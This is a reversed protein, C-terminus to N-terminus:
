KLKLKAIITRMSNEVIGIAVAQAGLAEESAKQAKLKQLQAKENQLQLELSILEDPIEISPEGRIKKQQEVVKRMEWYGEPDGRAVVANIYLLYLAENEDYGLGQLLESAQTPTLVGQKAGKIIEAKTLNKEAVTREGSTAKVITTMLENAKDDPVGLARIANYLQTENIWGKSYQTKLTPLAVDIVTWVTLYAATDAGYGLAQFQDYLFKTPSNPGETTIINQLIQLIDITSISILKYEYLRVIDTRSLGAAAVKEGVTYIMLEALKAAISQEYGLNGIEEPLKNYDIYGLKYLNQIQTLTLKRPTVALAKQEAQSIKYKSQAVFDDITSQLYGLGAMTTRLWGETRLGNEFMYQAVSRSMSPPELITPEATIRIKYADAREIWLALAPGPTGLESLKSEFDALTIKGRGYLYMYETRVANREAETRYAVMSVAAKDADEESLGGWRRYRKIDEISYAGVDYGYGMERISPPNFAVNYIDERWQPHIDAIRLLELFQDKTWYGRRLNDYAQTIPMPLFHATWYRDSWESTFGKKAMYEAFVAPAEVVYKPDFAERVVMTILDSSPPILNLLAKLYATMDSRYGNRAMIFDLTEDTVIGRWFLEFAQAINPYLYNQEQWVNAWQPSLGTEAMANIYTDQGIIEKSAALALRYAEPLMPMFHKLHYRRLAPYVGQTFEARRIDIATAKSANIAPTNALQSVNVDIQGLSVSEVAINAGVQAMFAGEIPGLQNSAQEALDEPTAPSAYSFPLQEAGLKDRFSTAAKAAEEKAKDASVAEILPRILNGVADAIPKIFINYLDDFLTM